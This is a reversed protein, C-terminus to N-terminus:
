FIVWYITRDLTGISSLHPIYCYLLKTSIHQEDVINEGESTAIELIIRGFGGDFLIPTIMFRM